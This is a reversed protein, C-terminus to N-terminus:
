ARYFQVIVFILPFLTVSQLYKREIQGKESLQFLSSESKSLYHAERHITSKQQVFVANRKMKIWLTLLEQQDLHNSFEFDKGYSAQQYNQYHFFQIQKLLRLSHYAHKKM